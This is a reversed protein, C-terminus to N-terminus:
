GLIQTRVNFRLGQGMGLLRGQGAASRAWCGGMGLQWGHGPAAWARSGGMGFSGGFDRIVELDVEQNTVQTDSPCAARSTLLATLASSALFPARPATTVCRTSSVAVLLRRRPPCGSLRLVPM